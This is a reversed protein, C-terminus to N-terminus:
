RHQNTPSDTNTRQKQIMKALVNSRALIFSHAMLSGDSGILKIDMSSSDNMINMMDRIFTSDKVQRHDAISRTKPVLAVNHHSGTYFQAIKIEPYARKATGNIVLIETNGLGSKWDKGIAFSHASQDGLTIDKAHQKVIEVMEMKKIDANKEAKALSSYKEYQYEWQYLDGMQSTIFLSQDSAVIQHISDFSGVKFVDVLYFLDAYRNELEVPVFQTKNQPALQTSPIIMYIQRKMEFDDSLLFIRNLVCKVSEVVFCNPRHTSPYGWPFKLRKPRCNGLGFIYIDMNGCLVVTMYQSVSISSVTVGQLQVECPVYQNEFNGLGLVGGAGKGFTYLEGDSTVVCSHVQSLAVEVVQVGKLAAVLQPKTVCIDSQLSGHGLEGYEGKGFTYLEGDKTIVATHHNSAAVRVVKLESLQEMKCPTIQVEAASGLRFGEGLGWSYIDGEKTAVVTHYQSVAVNTIDEFEFFRM